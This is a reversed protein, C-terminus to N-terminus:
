SIEISTTRGSKGINKILIEYNGGAFKKNTTINIEDYLLILYTYTKDVSPTPFEGFTTSILKELDVENLNDEINNFSGNTVTLIIKNDNSHQRLQFLYNESSYDTRLTINYFQSGAFILGVVIGNNKSAIYKKQPTFTQVTPVFSISVQNLKPTVTTDATSFYAKYRVYRDGSHGSWINQGSTTYYTNTTGDPGVFDWPGASSDSTAIQFKVETSSPLDADFYLKDYNTASSGTDYVSSIFTGTHYYELATTTYTVVM